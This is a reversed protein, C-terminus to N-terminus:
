NGHKSIHCNPVVTYDPGPRDDGSIKRRTVDTSPLGARGKFDRDSPFRSTCINLAHTSRCTLWGECVRPATTSFRHNSRAMAGPAARCHDMRQALGIIRPRPPLGRVM